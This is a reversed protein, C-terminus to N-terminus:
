ADHINHTYTIARVKSLKLPATTEISRKGSVGIGVVEMRLAKIARCTEIRKAPQVPTNPLSISSVGKM